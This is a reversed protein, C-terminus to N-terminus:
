HSFVIRGIMEENNENRKEYQQKNETNQLINCRKTFV